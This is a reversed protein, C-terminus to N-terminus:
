FHCRRVLKLALYVSLITYAQFHPRRYAFTTVRIHSLNVLDEAYDIFGYKHGQYSTTLFVEEWLLDGKCALQILVYIM